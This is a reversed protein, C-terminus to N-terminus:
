AAGTAKAHHERHHTPCLWRVDLPKSYDDHHAHVRAEGCVECASRTLRGAALARAVQWRAEHHERTAHAARYRRQNAAQRAREEATVPTRARWAQYLERQRARYAPDARRKEGYMRWSARRSESNVPTM